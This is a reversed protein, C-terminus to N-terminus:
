LTPSSFCNVLYTLAAGGPTRPASHSPQFFPPLRCASLGCRVVRLRCGGIRVGGRWVLLTFLTKTITVMGLNTGKISTQRLVAVVVFLILPHDLSLQIMGLRSWPSPFFFTGLFCGRHQREV